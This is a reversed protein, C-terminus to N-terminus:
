VIIKKIEAEQTTPIVVLAQSQLLKSPLSYYIDINSM